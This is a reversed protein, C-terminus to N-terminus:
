TTPGSRESSSMMAETDSELIARRSRFTGQGTLIKALVSKNEGVYSVFHQMQAVHGNVGHIDSINKVAFAFAVVGLVALGIGITLLAWFPLTPIGLTVFLTAILPVVPKLLVLGGALTLSFGVAMIFFQLIKYGFNGWAHKNVLQEITEVASRLESKKVSPLDCDDVNQTNINELPVPAGRFPNLETNAQVLCIALKDIYRREVRSLKRVASVFNLGLQTTNHLIQRETADITTSKETQSTLRELFLKFIDHDIDFQSRQSM